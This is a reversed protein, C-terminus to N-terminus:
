YCPGRVPIGMMRLKYRLGRVYETGVKTAKFKSGFLSTKIGHQKKSYAKIPSSQLYVLFGTRSRRTVCDGAHKSDIYLRMVFGEGRAQPADSPLPKSLKTGGTAYVYHSWDERPFKEMDIIPESPDYM